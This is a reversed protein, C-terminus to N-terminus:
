VNRACNHIVRSVLTLSLGCFLNHLICPLCVNGHLSVIHCHHRISHGFFVVAPHHFVPTLHSVQIYLFDNRNNVLNLRFQDLTTRLHDPIGILYIRIRQPLNRSAFSKRSLQASLKLFM